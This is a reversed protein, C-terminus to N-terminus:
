ALGGLILSGLFVAFRIVFLGGLGRWMQLLLCWDAVCVSIECCGGRGLWVVLRLGLGLFGVM